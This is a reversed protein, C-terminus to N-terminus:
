NKLFIKFSENTSALLDYNFFALEDKKSMNKGTTLSSNM